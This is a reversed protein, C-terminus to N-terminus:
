ASREALTRATERASFLDSASADAGVERWAVPSAHFAAGGVVISFSPGGEIRRLDRILDATAALNFSMTCSIGVLRAGSSRVLNIIGQHPLQTGLFRVDWGDADLLDAVMHAGIQHLEGEVGTVVVIGRAETSRPLRSYMSTLVTQTVASAMHEQAVSIRGEAWLEGLRRQAKEIVHLYLDPLDHGQALASEMVALTAQRRGSLITELYDREIAALGLPSSNVV